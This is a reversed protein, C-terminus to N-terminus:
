EGSEMTRILEYIKGLKEKCDYHHNGIFLGNNHLYDANTLEDFIEYDFYKIVENRTFNGAVIPRCDVNEKKLKKILDNRSYLANKKVILSFGFYSSQGIEKQIIISKLMSFKKVFFEANERRNNTINKLKKLQEIGLAGELELPRLNYGPLIFNFTEYFDDEKKSYISSEENLNRTWGHARISIMLDRLELDNTIVMGGEMTSIHHSFFTSFTGMVGMTGLYKNNYKAGMAECNDELLIIDKENCIKLIEDYENSNGLLNVAFILKTKDSIAEKLKKISFNLTELDIDVFKVKLNYQQLPSYTTAWSVAPVIVEDGPKLNYKNCYVLAAIALLNASSGSNVMVAYDVGFYDAFNKEFCEVEKGMTFYNSKIVREIAEYEDKDWNGTALPLNIM